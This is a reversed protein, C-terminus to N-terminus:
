RQAAVLNRREQKATVALWGGWLGHIGNVLGLLVLGVHLYEDAENKNLNSTVDSKFVKKWM